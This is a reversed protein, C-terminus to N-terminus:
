SLIKKALRESLALIDYFRAIKQMWDAPIDKVGYYLGALGGALAAITDTSEGLNVAKLVTETYSSSNLLCWLVAELTHVTYGGSHIEAQSLEALNGGIINQFQSLQDNYPPHWYFPEIRAIGQLYAIKPDYGRLLDIAISVYFGCAMQSRPHAHTIQSIKHIRDLLEPFPLLHHFFVFPLTRVLSGNGNSMEETEGSLQPSIGERLHAIAKATTFGIDFRQGHPTWVQGEYWRSLLNATEDLLADSQVDQWCLADAVCFMLSSEDSWTGPPQNHTGYGQMGTVPIKQLQSRPSFEVPVGLADGICFGLLGSLIKGALLQAQVREMTNAAGHHLRNTIM